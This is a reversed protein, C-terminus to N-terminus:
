APVQGSLRWLVWAGGVALVVVAAAALPRRIPELRGGAAAPAVEPREPVEARLRELLGEPPEGAPTDILRREVDRRATRTMTRRTTAPRTM